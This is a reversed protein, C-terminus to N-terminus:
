FLKNQLSNQSLIHNYLNAVYKEEYSSLNDLKLICVLNEKYLNNYVHLIFPHNKLSM